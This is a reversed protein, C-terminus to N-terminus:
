HSLLKERARHHHSECCTHRGTRHGEVATAGTAEVVTTEMAATEMAMAAIGSDAAEPMAPMMAPAARAEDAVM